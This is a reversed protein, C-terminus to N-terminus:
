SVNEYWIKVMHINLMKKHEKRCNKNKLSVFNQLTFIKM